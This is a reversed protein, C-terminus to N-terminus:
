RDAPIIQKTFYQNYEAQKIIEEFLKRKGVITSFLMANSLMVFTLKKFSDSIGNDQQFGGIHSKNKNNYMNPATNPTPHTAIECLEQYDSKSIIPEFECQNNEIKQRVKAPSFEKIRNGRNALVWQKYSDPRISFLSILNCIEAASRILNLSEDYFGELILILASSSINYVRGALSELIHDGGRCGKHCTGVQYLASMSTGLISINKRDVTDLIEGYKKTKEFTRALEMLIFEQGTPIKTM